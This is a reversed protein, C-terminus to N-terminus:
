LRSGLVRAVLAGVLLVWMALYFGFLALAFGALPGYLLEYQSRPLLKPLGLRLAEFLGTALGAGAATSALGSPKPPLLAYVLFFLVYTAVLPLLNPILGQAEKPLFRLFFGLGLGLLALLILGLGLLVPFLLGLIRSRVGRTGGYLLGLAHSLAAFFNSSSWLLLLGSTLSLPFARKTLFDLLAQATEPHAPFLTQTFTEMEQLVIQYLAPDRLLFGFLGALLLLLPALSFLAYYALAAAFFSLHAAQYLAAIERILNTGAGGRPRGM